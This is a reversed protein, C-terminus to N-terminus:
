FEGFEQKVAELEALWLTTSVDSPM